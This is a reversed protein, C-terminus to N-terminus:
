AAMGENMQLINVRQLTRRTTIIWTTKHWSRVCWLCKVNEVLLGLTMYVWYCLLPCCLQWSSHNTCWLKYLRIWLPFYLYTLTPKSISKWYNNHSPCVLRTDRTQCRPYYNYTRSAHAPHIWNFVLGVMTNYEGAILWHLWIIWLDPWNVTRM